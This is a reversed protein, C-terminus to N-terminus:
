TTNKKTVLCNWFHVSFVSVSDALAAPYFLPSSTFYRISASFVVPFLSRRGPIAFDTPAALICFSQNQAM